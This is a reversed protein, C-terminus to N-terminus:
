KQCQVFHTPHSPVATVIGQMGDELPIVGWAGPGFGVSWKQGRRWPMCLARPYSTLGLDWVGSCKYPVALIRRYLVNMVHSCAPLLSSSTKFISLLRILNIVLYFYVETMLFLVCSIFQGSLLPSFSFLNCHNTDPGEARVLLTVM